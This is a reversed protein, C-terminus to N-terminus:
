NGYEKQNGALRKMADGTTDSVQVSYRLHVFAICMGSNKQPRCM